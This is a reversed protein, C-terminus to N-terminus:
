VLIITFHFNNTLRRKQLNKRRPNILGRKISEMVIIIVNRKCGDIFPITNGSQEVSCVIEKDVAFM